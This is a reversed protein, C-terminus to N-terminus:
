EELDILGKSIWLRKQELKAQRIREKELEQMEEPSVYERLQQEHSPAAPGL